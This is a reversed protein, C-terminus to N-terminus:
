LVSQRDTSDKQQLNEELHARREITQRTLSGLRLEPKILCLLHELLRSNAGM